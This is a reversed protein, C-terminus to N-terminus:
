GEKDMPAWRKALILIGDEHLFESSDELRAHVIRFDDSHNVCMYKILGDFGDIIEKGYKQDRLFAQVFVLFGGCPMMSITNRIVRPFTELIYWLLQSLILIRYSRDLKLDEAGIDGVVFERNPFLSRAKAIATPSIDMGTVTVNAVRELETQLHEAVYGLGCGVELIHIKGKTFVPLSELTKVLNARSFAYYETLRPDGGRQGWPDTVNQYYGEFDGVFRLHGHGDKTFVYDESVLEDNESM